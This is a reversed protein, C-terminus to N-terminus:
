NKCSSCIVNETREFPNSEIQLWLRFQKLWAAEGCVLCKSGDGEEERLEFTVNINVQAAM